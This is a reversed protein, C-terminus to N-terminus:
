ARNSKGSHLIENKVESELIEMTDKPSLGIKQCLLLFSAAVLQLGQYTMSNVAQQVERHTLKNESYMFAKERGNLWIAM